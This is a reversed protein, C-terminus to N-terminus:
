PKEHSRIGRADIADAISDAQRLTHIILPVLLTAPRVALGRCLHAERLIRYREVIDPVFRIVLGIALGIDAARVLGLREFPTAFATVEDIFAAMSTTATIATALLVLTALRLVTVAAQASGSTLLTLLGVLLITLFVPRLRLFAARASLGSALVVVIAFCLCALSVAISQNLFLGIAALALFILKLRAPLRHLPSNGEVYFSKM